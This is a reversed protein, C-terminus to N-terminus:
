FIRVSTSDVRHSRPIRVERYSDLFLLSQNAENLGPSRRALEQSDSLKQLAGSLHFDYAGIVANSRCYTCETGEDSIYM